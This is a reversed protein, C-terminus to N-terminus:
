NHLDPVSFKIHPLSHSVFLFIRARSEWDESIKNQCSTIIAWCQGRLDAHENNLWNVQSRNSANSKWSDSKLKGECTPEDQSWQGDSGCHLIESGNLSYGEDCSFTATSSESYGSVVVSGNDPTTINDCLTEAGLLFLVGCVREKIFIEVGRRLSTNEELFVENCFLMSESFPAKHSLTMNWVFTSTGGLGTRRHITSPPMIFHSGNFKPYLSNQRPFNSVLYIWGCTAWEAALRSTLLLAKM